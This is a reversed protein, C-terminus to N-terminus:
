QPTPILVGPLAEELFVVSLIHVTTWLLRSSEHALTKTFSTIHDTALSLQEEGTMIIYNSSSIGVLTFQGDEGASGEKCGRVRRGM